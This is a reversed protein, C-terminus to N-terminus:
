GEADFNVDKGCQCCIYKWPGYGDKSGEWFWGVGPYREDRCPVCLISLTHEEEPVDKLKDKDFFFFADKPM